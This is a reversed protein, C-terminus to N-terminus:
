PVLLTALNVLFARIAFNKGRIQRMVEQQAHCVRARMRLSNTQVMLEQTAYHAFSLEKEVTRVQAVDTALLHATRTSVQNALM